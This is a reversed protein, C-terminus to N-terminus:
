RRAYAHELADVVKGGVRVKSGKDHHQVRTGTLARACSWMKEMWYSSPLTTSVHNSTTEPVRRCRAGKFGDRGYFEFGLALIYPAGLGIL